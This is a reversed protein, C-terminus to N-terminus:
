RSRVWEPAHGRWWVVATHWPTQKLRPRVQGRAQREAEANIEAGFLITLNTLFLWLLLVTGGAITGYTETYHGITGAYWSFLASIVTWITAAVVTGPGTWKPHAGARDAGLHYVLTLATVALLVVIGWRLIEVLVRTAGDFGVSDLVAPLIALLGVAVMLFGLAGFTLLIGTWRLELFNRHEEEDYAIKVAKLLGTVGLSSTWLAGIVALVLHLSLGHHQEALAHLREVVIARADGPMATLVSTLQHELQSADAVLGYITLVALLGPFFSLFMYFAVGASLLPAADENMDLAARVFVSRWDKPTLERLGRPASAPAAPPEDVRAPPQKDTGRNPLASSSAGPRASETRHKAPGHSTVTTNRTVPSRSTV